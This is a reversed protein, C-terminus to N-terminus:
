NEKLEKLLLSHERRWKKIPVVCILIEYDFLMDRRRTRM